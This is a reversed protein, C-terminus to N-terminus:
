RVTKLETPNPSQYILSRRNGVFGCTLESLKSRRPVFIAILQPSAASQRHMDEWETVLPKRPADM